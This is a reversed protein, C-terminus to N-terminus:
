PKMSSLEVDVEDKDEKLVFNSTKYRYHYSVYLFYVFNFAGLIAILYYYYDVRGANIDATLWDPRGHGGTKDHVINVVMTSLYSAGAMSCSLLSNAISKMHDPFQRNFFEILGIMNFAECFGMLILQPALWFVSLIQGDLASDRRKKEVVGAVVMALISFFIGIGIRQLLTIGGEHKTIKRLSPVIIRDYIPIFIGITLMSITILSGPPIQFKPGLHRDMTLAQSLTFTAQQTIATLSIIGSAWIPIIRILCKVEEVEQISCLRWKNTSGDPKLDNETIMCAKNLFRFQHTLPLKSFVNETLPPDYLVGIQHDGEDVAPLKLKRKKYAAVLVQAISSFISGQPKVHVYIKTGILFLVISLVMLSTPIAFGIFWSVSDQIYVVLTLTLLIVLTFTAYYWNFFSTIGKAGEETKPDFQDMGFPINCPRIGGSGISLMALGAIIVGLQMGNPGICHGGEKCQPPRLDPIWATLTVIVMGLLSAFSAVLITKFRGVYADSIFAGVLPAFNTVGNWINLVNSAAVQDMHFERMLYVMFNASLGFTAFREFTENGLIYPMAKWGGPKKQKQKTYSCVSPSASSSLLVNGNKGEEQVKKEPLAPKQDNKSCCYSSFYGSYKEKFSKIVM